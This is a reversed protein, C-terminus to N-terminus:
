SSTGAATPRPRFQPIAVDPAIQEFEVAVAMGCKVEDIETGPLNTTLTIGPADDLMVTAV